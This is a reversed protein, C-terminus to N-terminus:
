EVDKGSLGGVTWNPDHDGLASLPLAEQHVVLVHGDACLATHAGGSDWMTNLATDHNSTWEYVLLKQSPYRVDALCRAATPMGCTHYAKDVGTRMSAAGASIDEDRHFFPQLYAYSTADFKLAALQDAPCWYSKRSSMYPDLVPRWKRGNWLLTDGNEPFREDHEDVYLSIAMGIQRLNALCVARQGSRRIAFLTPFLLAALLAVIAIVVLLELLTFGHRRIHSM